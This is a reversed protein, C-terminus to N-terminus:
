QDEEGVREVHQRHPRNHHEHVIDGVECDSKEFEGYIDCVDNDLDDRIHGQKCGPDVKSYPEERAINYVFEVLFTVARAFNAFVHVVGHQVHHESEDRAEGTKM